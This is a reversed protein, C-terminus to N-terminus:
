WYIDHDGVSYFRVMNKDCFDFIIRNKYDVSFAWFTKLPRHLKHTNLRSDFPDKRFIEEKEVVLDQIKVPLKKFEREFRPRYFIKM